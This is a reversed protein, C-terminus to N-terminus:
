SPYPQRLKGDLTNLVHAFSEHFSAVGRAELTRGVDDLDVGLATLRDMVEAARDLHTDITRSVKGHDEFAGITTVPLTNVTGPGILSDVYLTDPLTPDKTSTSAWLPRQLHAGRAALREWRGGAFRERFV